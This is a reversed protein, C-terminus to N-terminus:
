PWNDRFPFPWCPKAQDNSHGRVMWSWRNAEPSAICGHAWWIQLHHPIASWCIEYDNCCSDRQSAYPRKPYYPPTILTKLSLLTLTGFIWKAMQTGNSASKGTYTLKEVCYKGLSMAFPRGDMKTSRCLPSTTNGHINLLPLGGSAICIM